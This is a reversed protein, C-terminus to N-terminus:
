GDGGSAHRIAADVLSGVPSESVSVSIEAAAVALFSSALLVSPRTVAYLISAVYVVKSTTPYFNMGLVPPPTSSPSSVVPVHATFPYSPSLRTARRPPFLARISVAHVFEGRSRGKRSSYGVCLFSPAAQFFGTRRYTYVRRGDWVMASPPPTCSVRVRTVFWRMREGHHCRGPTTPPVPEAVTYTPAPFFMDPTCRILFHIFSLSCIYALDRKM